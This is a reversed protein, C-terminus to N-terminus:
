RLAAVTSQFILNVAQAAADTWAGSADITVAQADIVSLYKLNGNDAFFNSHTPAATPMPDNVDFVDVSLKGAELDHMNISFRRNDSTLRLVAVKHNGGTDQGLEDGDADLKEIRAEGNYAVGNYHVLTGISLNAAALAHTNLTIKM